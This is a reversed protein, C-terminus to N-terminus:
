FDNYANSATNIRLLLSLVVALIRSESIRQLKGREFDMAEIKKEHHGLM